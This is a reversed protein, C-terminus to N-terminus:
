AVLTRRLRGLRRQLRELDSDAVAIDLTLSVDITEREPDAAHAPIQDVQTAYEAVFQRIQHLPGDVMRAAADFTRRELTSSGSERVSAAWDLLDAYVGLLRAALIRIADPDGPEGPAGFAREQSEFSLIEPLSVALAAAGDLRKGLRAISDTARSPQTPGGRAGPGRGHKIYQAEREAIGIWLVAGFLMYEWGPPRIAVMQEAHRESRPMRRGDWPARETSRRWLALRRDGFKPSRTRRYNALVQNRTKRDSARGYRRGWAWDFHAAWDTRLRFAALLRAILPWKRYARPDQARVNATATEVGSYYTVLYLFPLLAFPFWFSLATEQLLALWEDRPMGRVLSFTTWITLTVGIVVIAAECIRGLSANGQHAAGVAVIAVLAAIAQLVLEWLLPLSVLNAYLAFFVAAGTTAALASRWVRLSSRAQIAKVILAGGLGVVVLLTPWWLAASWIGATSAGWLLLACYAVYVGVLWVFPRALRALSPIEQRVARVSLAVVLVAAVLIASALERNDPM